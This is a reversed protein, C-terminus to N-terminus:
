PEYAKCSPLIKWQEEVKAAKSVWLPKWILELDIEGLGTDSTHPTKLLLTKPELQLLCGLAM